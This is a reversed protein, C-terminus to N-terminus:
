ELVESQTCSGTQDDSSEDDEPSSEDVTFFHREVYRFCAKVEIYTVAVGWVIFTICVMVAWAASVLRWPDDRKNMLSFAFTLILVVLFVLMYLIEVVTSRFLVAGNYTDVVLASGM